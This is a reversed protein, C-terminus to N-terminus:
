GWYGTREVLERYDDVTVGVLVRDWRRGGRYYWGRQRGEERWGCREVYARYSPQNSAIITTDLRHLGLEDFAYRMVAMITDTGLGRGRNRSDGIMMGHFANRDKWNIEVLNATGILGQAETEIAWRQNLTDTQIREFWREGWEPSTPFHWGGLHPWVSPDNGWEHLLPLDSRTVARLTVSKGVVNM